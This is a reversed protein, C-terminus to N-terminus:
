SSPSPLPKFKDIPFSLVWIEFLVFIAPLFYLGIELPHACNEYWDWWKRSALDKNVLVEYIERM